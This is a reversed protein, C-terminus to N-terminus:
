DAFACGRKTKQMVFSGATASDGSSRNFATNSVGGMIKATILNGAYSAVYSSNYVGWWHVHDGLQIWEGHMANPFETDSWTGSYETVGQIDNTQVFDFCQSSGKKRHPETYTTIKWIGKLPNAGALAARDALGLVALLVLGFILKRYM